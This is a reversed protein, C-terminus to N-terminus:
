TGNGGNKVLKQHSVKKGVCDGKLCVEDMVVGKGKKKKDVIVVKKFEKEVM